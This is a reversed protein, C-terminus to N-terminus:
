QAGGTGQLLVAHTPTQPRGDCSNRESKSSCSRPAAAAMTTRRSQQASADLLCPFPPAAMALPPARLVFPEATHKRCDVMIPPMRMAPQWTNWTGHCAAGKCARRRRAPAM